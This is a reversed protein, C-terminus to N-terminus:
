YWWTDTECETEKGEFKVVQLVNAPADAEHVKIGFRSITFINGDVKFIRNIDMARVEEEWWKGQSMSRTCGAPILDQHTLRAKETIVDGIDYLIAGSFKLRSGFASDRESADVLEVAPIAATMTASDFYFAHHDSTVDSYSGRDGIIVNSTRKMEAPNSVDFLSVQLGQYYAFDGQDAADFGVGLVKGEAVPHMYVSFGPIKLEGLIKPSLPASMDIAYLPDTKKFTVVYAMNGVYRVSRVNEGTGFDHIANVVKLAAGEQKLIWMHNQALNDGGSWLQGTSTVVSLADVEGFEKFAWQDKVYGNIAGSAALTLMESEFNLPIKNVILQEQFKSNSEYDYSGYVWQAGQKTTYLNNKTMYIQSGSGAIGLVNEQNAINTLDIAYIKTLSFDMDQLSRKAIRNCSIGMIKGEVIKVPASKEPELVRSYDNYEVPMRTNFVLILKNNTVRSDYVYDSIESTEVLKPLENEILAYTKIQTVPKSKRCSYNPDYDYDDLSPDIATSYLKPCETLDIKEKTTILVLLDNQIYMQASKVDDLVIKGLIALDNRGIVEISDKTAVFIHFEAIKTHDSEDVGQEQINTTSPSGLVEASSADDSENSSMDAQMDGKVSVADRRDNAQKVLKKHSEIAGAFEVQIEECSAYNSNSLSFTPDTAVVSVNNGGGEGGGGPGHNDKIQDLLQGAKGCSLTGALSLVLLLINNKIQM